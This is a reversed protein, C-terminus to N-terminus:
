ATRHERDSIRLQSEALLARPAHQVQEKAQIDDLPIGILEPDQYGNDLVPPPITDLNVLTDVLSTSKETKEINDVTQDEFFTVDRSQIAMGNEPDWLHLIFFNLM